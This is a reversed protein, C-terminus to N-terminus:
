KPAGGGGKTPLRWREYGRNKLFCLSLDRVGEGLLSNSGDECMSPPRKDLWKVYRVRGPKGPRTQNCVLVNRVWIFRHTGWWIFLSGRGPRGPRTQNCVLVNRARLLALGEPVKGIVPLARGPGQRIVSLCMGQGWFRLGRRSRSQISTPAAKRTRALSKSPDSPKSWRQGYLKSWSSKPPPKWM